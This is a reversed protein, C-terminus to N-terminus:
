RLFRLFEQYPLLASDYRNKKLSRSQRGRQIATGGRREICDIGYEKSAEKKIREVSNLTKTKMRRMM